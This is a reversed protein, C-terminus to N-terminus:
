HNREYYNMGRTGLSLYHCIDGLEHWFEMKTRLQWAFETQVAISVSNGSYGCEWVSNPFSILQVLTVFTVGPTQARPPIKM